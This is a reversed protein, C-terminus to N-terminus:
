SGNLIILIGKVFQEETVYAKGSHESMVDFFRDALIGQLQTYEFLALEDIFKTQQQAGLPKRTRGAVDKFM